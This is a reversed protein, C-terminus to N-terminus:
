PSVVVRQSVTYQYQTPWMQDLGGFSVLFPATITYTVAVTCRQEQWAAAIAAAKLANGCTPNSGDSCAVDNVATAITIENGMGAANRVVRLTDAYATSSAAQVAFYRGGVGAANVVMYYNNFLWSFQAVAFMIFLLFPAVIVFEVM